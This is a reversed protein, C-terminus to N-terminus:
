FGDRADREVDYDREPEEPPEPEHSALYADVAAQVQEANDLLALPITQDNVTVMVDTASDEDIFTMPWGRRGDADSGYTPDHSFTTTRTFGITIDLGDVMADFEVDTTHTGNKMSM